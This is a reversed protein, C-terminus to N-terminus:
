ARTPRVWSLVRKLVARRWRVPRSELYATRELLRRIARQMEATLHTEHRPMERAEDPAHEGLLELYGGSRRKARPLADLDAVLTKTGEFTRSLNLVGFHALVSRAYICKDCKSCNGDHAENKWCVRLHKHVLPEHAIARMKEGKRREQGVSLFARRSSGWMPDLRFHSGWPRGSRLSISSSILVRRVAGGLAHGVGALVGGHTREWAVDALLPHTRVNTRLVVAKQGRARAVERLSHEVAAHRTEADLGFDFGQILVLYHADHGGHFLTYFSDVGGSFFLATEGGPDAEQVAARASALPLRLPYGWWEKLLDQVAVLNDLWVPDVPEDLVIRANRELAPIMFATAWAEAVPELAIDSSEFWVPAGDVDATVRWASGAREIRPTSIEITDRPAPRHM